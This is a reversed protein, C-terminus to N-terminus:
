VKYQDIVYIEEGYLSLTSNSVLNSGTTNGSYQNMCYAIIPADNDAKFHEGWVASINKILLLNIEEFPIDNICSADVAFLIYDKGRGLYVSYESYQCVYQKPLDFFELSRLKNGDNYIRDVKKCLNRVSGIGHGNKVLPESCYGYHTASRECLQFIEGACEMYRNVSERSWDAYGYFSYCKIM